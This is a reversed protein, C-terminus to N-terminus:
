GRYLNMGNKHRYSGKQMWLFANETRGRGEPKGGEASYLINRGDVYQQVLELVEAPLIEEARIYGM